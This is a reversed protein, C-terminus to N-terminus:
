VSVSEATPLRSIWSSAAPTGALVSVIMPWPSDLVTMVPDEVQASRMKSTTLVLPALTLRSSCFTVSSPPLAWFPPTSPPLAASPPPSSM